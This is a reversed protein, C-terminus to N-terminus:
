MKHYRVRLHYGQTRRSRIEWGWPVFFRIRKSCRSATGAVCLWYLFLPFGLTYVVVSLIAPGLLKHPLHEPDWCRCLGGGDCSLDTFGVYEWGDDPDTPSCNFVELARTTCSLYVCYILLM